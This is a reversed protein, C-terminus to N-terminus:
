DRCYGRWGYGGRGCRCPPVLCPREQFEDLAKLQERATGEPIQHINFIEFSPQIAHPNNVYHLYDVPRLGLREAELSVEEENYNDASVSPTLPTITPPSCAGLSLLISLALLGILIYIQIKM